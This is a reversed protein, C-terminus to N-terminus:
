ENNIVIYVQCIWLAVAMLFHAWEMTWPVHCAHGRVHQKHASKLRDTNCCSGEPGRTVFKEASIKGWQGREPTDNSTLRYHCNLHCTESSTPVSIFRTQRVKHATVRALLYRGEGECEGCRDM